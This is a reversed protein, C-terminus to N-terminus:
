ALEKQCRELLSKTLKIGESESIGGGEWEIGVWGDYGAGLVIKMM